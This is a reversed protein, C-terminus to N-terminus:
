VPNARTKKKLASCYRSSFHSLIFNLKTVFIQNCIMWHNIQVIYQKTVYRSHMSLHDRALELNRKLRRKKGMGDLCLTESHKKKKKPKKKGGNKKKTKKKGINIPPKNPQIICRAVLIFLLLAV